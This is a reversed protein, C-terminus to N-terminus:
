LNKEWEERLPLSGVAMWGAYVTNRDEAYYFHQSLIGRFANLHKYIGDISIV